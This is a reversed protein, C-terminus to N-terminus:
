FKRRLPENASNLFGISAGYGNLVTGFRVEYQELLDIQIYTPDSGWFGSDLDFTIEAISSENVQYYTYIITSDEHIISSFHPYPILESWESVSQEVLYTPDLRVLGIHGASSLYTVGLSPDPLMLLHLDTAKGLGTTNSQAALSSVNSSFDAILTSNALLETLRTVLSKSVM